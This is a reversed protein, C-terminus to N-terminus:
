STADRDWEMRRNKTKQNEVNKAVRRDERGEKRWGERWGERDKGVIEGRV